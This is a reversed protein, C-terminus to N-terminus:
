KSKELANQTPAQPRSETREKALAVFNVPNLHLPPFGARRTMDAVTERIYPFIIAPGNIEAVNTLVSENPIDKFKFIGKGEIFFHFPMNEDKIEIKLFIDMVKSRKEFEHRIGISTTIPIKKAKSSFKENVIFNINLLNFALFSMKLDSHQKQM